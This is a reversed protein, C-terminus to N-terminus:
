GSIKVINATIATLSTGNYVETKTVIDRSRNFDVASRTITANSGSINGVTPVAEVDNFKVKSVRYVSTPITALTEKPTVYYGAQYSGFFPPKWWSIAKNVNPIDATYMNLSSMYGLSYATGRRGITMYVGDTTLVPTYQGSSFIKSCVKGVPQLTTINGLNENLGNWYTRGASYLNGATDLALIAYPHVSMTSITYSGSILTPTKYITNVSPAFIWSNQDLMDGIGYLKGDSTIYYMAYGAGGYIKEATVGLSTFSTRNTTDGLGLAYSTGNYGTVWLTKDPKLIMGSSASCAADLVTIGTNYWTTQNTTNGIGLEGNGNFGTVYLIGSKIAYTMYTGTVIKNFMYSTKTLTTRATTDGTGLQGYTNDGAVYLYGDTGLVFLSMSSAAVDTATINLKTYTYRVNKDGLGLQGYQNDGSVWVEGNEKLCVSWTGNPSVIKSIPSATVVNGDAGVTDVTFVIGTNTMLKDGSKADAIKNDLYIKSTTSISTTDLISTIAESTTISSLGKFDTETADQVVSDSFALATKTYCNDPVRSLPSSPSVWLGTKYVSDRTQKFAKAVTTRTTTGGNGLQGYENNGVSYVLMDDPNVFYSSRAAVGTSMCVPRVSSLTLTTRNTTDGLGLQGNTNYGCAYITDYGQRAFLTGYGVWINNYGNTSDVLTWTGRNTTDGLGLQGYQNDGTAYLLATKTIAYSSDWSCVVDTAELGTTTWTLVQTSTGLANGGTANYGGTAYVVNATDILMSQYAGASVKLATKGLLIFSLQNTANGIGLQGVSNWGAGFVRNTGDNLIGILHNAGCAIEKPRIYTIFWSLVDTTTGNGCQGYANYGTTFLYGNPHILATFYEGCKVDIAKITHKVWVNRNTTDGLGLQGNTNLGICWMDNNRTILFTHGRGSAITVVDHLSYEIGDDGVGSVTFPTKNDAYLTEGVSPTYYRGDIYVKNTTSVKTRDMLDVPASSIDSKSVITKNIVNDATGCNFLQTMNATTYSLAQDVVTTINKVTVTLTVSDSITNNNAIDTAAIHLHIITDVSVSPMAVYIKDEDTMVSGLETNVTYIMGPIHNVNTICLTSNEYVVNDYILDPTDTQVGTRFSVVNSYSSTYHNGYYKVRAFYQTDNDLKVPITIFTLDSQSTGNYELTSFDSIKSIEWLSSAHTDSGNVVSFASSMFSPNNSSANANGNLSLVPNTIYTSSSTIKLPDSWDSSYDQTHYRCRVYHVTDHELPAFTFSTLNVKSDVVNIFTSQFQDDYSVQWDTSQHKGLYVDTASFASAIVTGSFNASGYAPSTFVPKSIKILSNATEEVISTVEDTVKEETILTDSTAPTTYEIDGITADNARITTQIGLESDFFKMQATTTSSM